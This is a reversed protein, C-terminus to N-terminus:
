RGHCHLKVLGWVNDLQLTCIPDRRIAEKGEQMCPMSRLVSVAAVARGGRGAALLLLLMVVYGGARSAEGDRM